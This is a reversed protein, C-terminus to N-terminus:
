RLITSPLLDPLLKGSANVVPFYKQHERMSTILVEAPLQLFKEDFVGCVGYPMEVLNTVTDVLVEDIAVHGDPLDASQAVAQKIESVVRARRKVPDVLVFRDILQQEYTAASDVLFRENALFRHGGSSNAAEIGEHSFPIVENGFIATLWQIPRAFAHHNNGWRMSKPFSLDVILGHLLEPLLAATAVGKQQRMLMLYEGKPTSVVRLDGVDAGKSKAFGEAARTANGDADFGATKSPGLLEETIDEQKESVDKVILTLRRPTGMTTLAAFGMKLEAAKETFRKQLQALTPELFSAPIEEMGIEFLLDRM